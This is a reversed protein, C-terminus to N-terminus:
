DSSLRNSGIFCGDRATAKIRAKVHSVAQPLSGVRVGVDAGAVIAGEGESGDLAVGVRVRVSAGLAVRVAVGVRTGGVRDGVGSGRASRSGMM